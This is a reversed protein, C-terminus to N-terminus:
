DEVLLIRLGAFHSPDPLLGDDTVGDIQGAAEESGALGFRATFAFLSGRGEESEVWIRGGMAQVLRKSIALGLGTGGYRRTTSTDAQSFPVFLRERQAASIGIGSDLVSFRLLISSEESSEPGVEIEVGGLETFKVANGALNLLVQRLRLPDGRLKDPVSPHILTSFGLGKEAVRQSLIVEIKAIMDSLRFVTSELEIKGSEIKSIDLIDNIIELLLDASSGIRSLYGQQKPTLPTAKMLQALGIIANMPTRIEHSMNALFESKAANMSEAEVRASEAALRAGELSEEVTKSLSIDRLLVVVLSTLGATDQVPLKAISIWRRAEGETARLRERYVARGTALIEEDEAQAIELSDDSLYDVNVKGVLADPSSHCLVQAAGTNALLVKGARDKVLIGDPVADILARLLNRETRLAEEATKLASVDETMGVFHGIEGDRGRIPSISASAWFLSGDKRRNRFTGHWERGNLISRWLGEYLAAPQLGSNLIRPNKGIIEASDYGTMKYFKANAYEIDGTKDTIIVAVPSQEVASTVNRLEEEMRKREEIQRELGANIERMKAEGADLSRAFFYLGVLLVVGNLVSSLAGGFGHSFIGLETAYVHFGDVILPVIFILIIARKLLRAGGGGGVMASAPPRDATAAVLGLGLAMISLSAPVAMVAWFPGSGYDRVGFIHSALSLFAIASATAGGFFALHPLRRFDLFLLGLGIASFGLAPLIAMRGPRTAGIIAEPAEVYLFQDIGLDIGCCDEVLTLLGIAAILIALGLIARCRWGRRPSPPTDRGAAIALALGGLISSLAGNAKIAMTGPFLSALLPIGFYLGFLGLLGLAAAFLAAALIGRYAPRAPATEPKKM